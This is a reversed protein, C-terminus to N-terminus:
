DAFSGAVRDLDRKYDFGTQTIFTKYEAEEVVASSIFKDLVGSRRITAVDVFVLTATREPLYGAMAAPDLPQSNKVYVGIGIGTALVATGGAVWFWKRKSREADM